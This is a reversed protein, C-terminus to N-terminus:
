KKIDGILFTGIKRSANPTFVANEGLYRYTVTHEGSELGTLLKFPHNTNTITKRVPAGGDVSYEIIYGGGAFELWMGFDTGTFTYTFENGEESAYMFGRTKTCDFFMGNESFTYGKISDFMDANNVTVYTLTSNETLEDVYTDPLAHAKSEGYNLTAEGCLYKGLYETIADAFVKYGPDLPHVGDKFYTNWLEGNYKGGMEQCLARGVDVSTIGYAECIKEYEQANAHYSEVGNKQMFSQDTIYVAVIECEPLKERVERVLKEFYLGIRKEGATGSYNDNVSFEVFLLDTNTDIVDPDVRYAGLHVGSGGMAVNNQSLKAKPFSEKLWKFTLERWSNGGTSGYGSTVSGGFYSIIVNQDSNLKNYLNTLDGRANIFRSYKGNMSELDMKGLVSYDMFRQIMAAVEARTAKGDPRLRYQDPGVSYGGVINNSTCFYVAKRDFDNTLTDQDIFHELSGAEFTDPAVLELKIAYNYLMQMLELRLIDDDPRFYDGEEVIKNEYAWNIGKAFWAGSPVDCYTYSWTDKTAGDIRSLVAAVMARTMQGNPSFKGDGMGNFYGRSTVYNVNAEAWHTRMDYFEPVESKVAKAFTDGAVSVYYTNGSIYSRAIGNGNGDVVNNAGDQKVAGILVAEKDLKLANSDAKLSIKIGDTGDLNIEFESATKENIETFNEDMLFLAGSPVLLKVKLASEAMQSLATKSIKVNLTDTGASHIIIMEAGNKGAELLLATADNIVTLNSGDIFMANEYANYLFPGAAASVPMLVMLCAFCMIIALLTATIRKFNKM